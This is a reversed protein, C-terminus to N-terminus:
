EPRVIEQAAQEMCFTVFAGKAATYGDRDHEYERWLRLKLKEYEQAARPHRILYDRFVLEHADGAVRLHVHFVREAFGHVTYGKNLDLRATEEHMPLYGVTMLSSATQPLAAVDPLEILIDVIPKAWIDPIATSGIHHVSAGAPLVTELLAKEEEFWRAWCDQHETLQIPFLEWLEELSMQLLAEGNDM